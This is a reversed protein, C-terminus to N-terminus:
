RRGNIILLDIGAYEVAYVIRNKNRYLFKKEQCGQKYLPTHVLM